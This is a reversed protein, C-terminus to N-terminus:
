NKPQQPLTDYTLFSLHLKSHGLHLTSWQQHTFKGFIPSPKNFKEGNDLRDLVNRLRDLAERFQVGPRPLMAASAGKLKIGVPLPEGRIVKPKIFLQAGFRLIPNVKFPFGDLTFEKVIALHDLIEAPTWNGTHRLTGANHAAEIRDLEARLDDFSGLQLERRPATKPNM